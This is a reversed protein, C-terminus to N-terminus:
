PICINSVMTKTWKRNLAKPEEQMLASLMNIQLNVIVLVDGHDIERLHDGDSMAISLHIDKSDLVSERERMSKRKIHDMVLGPM